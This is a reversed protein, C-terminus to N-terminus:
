EAGFDSGELPIIHGALMDGDQRLNHPIGNQLFVATQDFTPRRGTDLVPMDNGGSMVDPDDLQKQRQRRIALGDIM